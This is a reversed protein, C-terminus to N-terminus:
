SVRGKWSAPMRFSLNRKSGSELFDVCLQVADLFLLPAAGANHVNYWVM